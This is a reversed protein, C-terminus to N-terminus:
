ALNHPTETNAPILTGKTSNSNICAQLAIETKDGLYYTFDSLKIASCDLYATTTTLITIQHEKLKPVNSPEMGDYYDSSYTVVLKYLGTDTELPNM